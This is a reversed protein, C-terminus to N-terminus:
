LDRTTWPERPQLRTESKALTAFPETKGFPSLSWSPNRGSQKSVAEFPYSSHMWAPNYSGTIESEVWEGALHGADKRWSMKM